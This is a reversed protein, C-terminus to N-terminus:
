NNCLTLFPSNIQRWTKRRRSGQLQCILLDERQDLVIISAILPLLPPLAQTFTEGGGHNGAASPAHQSISAPQRHNSMNGSENYVGHIGCTAVECFGMSLWCSKHFPGQLVLLSYTYLLSNNLLTTQTIKILLNNSWQLVTFYIDKINSAKFNLSFHMPQM